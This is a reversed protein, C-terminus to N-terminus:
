RNLVMVVMAAALGAIVTVFNVCEKLWGEIMALIGPFV